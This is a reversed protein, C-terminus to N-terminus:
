SIMFEVLFFVTKGKDVEKVEGVDVVKKFGVWFM